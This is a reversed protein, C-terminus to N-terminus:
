EREKTVPAGGGPQQKVTMGAVPILTLKKLLEDVSKSVKLEDFVEKLVVDYRILTALRRYKNCDLTHLRKKRRHVLQGYACM